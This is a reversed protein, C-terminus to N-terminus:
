SVGVFVFTELFRILGAEMAPSPVYALSKISPETVALHRSFAILLDCISIYAESAIRKDDCKLWRTCQNMYDDLM